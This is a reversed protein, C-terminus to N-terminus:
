VFGYSLGLAKCLRFVLGCCRSEKCQMYILSRTSANSDCRACIKGLGIGAPGVAILLVQQCFIYFTCM